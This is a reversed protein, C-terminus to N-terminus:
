KKLAKSLFKGFSEGTHKAGDKILNLKSGIKGGNARIGDITALVDGSKNLVNAKCFYDGKPTISLVIVKITYEANSFTGLILNNCTTLAEGIFALKIEDKDRDWDSEYIAFSEEDMGHISAESFDLDVNVRGQGRLVDLSGSSVVQSHGTMVFSIMLICISLLRNM